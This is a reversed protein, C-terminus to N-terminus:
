PENRLAWQPFQSAIVDPVPGEVTEGFACSLLQHSSLGLDAVVPRRLCLGSYSVHPSTGDDSEGVSMAEEIILGSCDRKMEDDIATKVPSNSKQSNDMYSRFKYHDMYLHLTRKFLVKTLVLCLACQSNNLSFRNEFVLWEILYMSINATCIFKQQQYTKIILKKNKDM